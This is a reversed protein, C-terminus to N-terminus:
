KGTDLVKNILELLLSGGNFINQLHSKQSETLNTDTNALLSQSSGLITNLPARLELRIRSLFELKAKHTQEAYEKAAQLERTKKSIDESLTQNKQQIANYLSVSEVTNAIYQIIVSILKLKEKIIFARGAPLFGAFMGVVRTKTALVHLVLKYDDKRCNVIITKNQKLAWAFDGYEVALDVAEKIDKEMSEPRCYKLGFDCDPENVLFFAVADFKLLENLLRYTDNFILKYDRSKRTDGHLNGLSSLLELSYFQYRCVEELFAIRADKKELEGPNEM